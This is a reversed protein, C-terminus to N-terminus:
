QDPDDRGVDALPDGGWNAPDDSGHASNPDAADGFDVDAAAEGITPEEPTVQEDGERYREEATEDRLTQDSLEGAENPLDPDPAIGAQGFTDSPRVDDAASGEVDAGAILPDQRWNDPNNEAAEPYDEPEAAADLDPQDPPVADLDEDQIAPPEDDVISLDEDSINPETM